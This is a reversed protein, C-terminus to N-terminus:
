IWAVRMNRFFWYQSYPKDTHVRALAMWRTADPTLESDDVVVDQLDDEKLGLEEMMAELDSTTSGSSSAATAM